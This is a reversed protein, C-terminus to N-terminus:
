KQMNTVTQMQYNVGVVLNTMQSQYTQNNEM